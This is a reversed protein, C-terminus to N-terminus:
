IISDSACFVRSKLSVLISSRFCERYDKTTETANNIQWGPTDDEPFRLYQFGAADNTAWMELIQITGDLLSTLFRKQAGDPTKIDAVGPM